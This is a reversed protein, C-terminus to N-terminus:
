NFYLRRGKNCHWNNWWNFEMWDNNNENEDQSKWYTIGLTRMGALYRLIRKLAGYHQLSPNATYAALQNVAYSIDPWTCNALYQLEGLLKAYSNSQNPENNEPNPEPKHHTDMLMGVPNADEMGEKQLLSEIYKQQLITELKSRITVKIGVIKQPERLNTVTVIIRKMENIWM